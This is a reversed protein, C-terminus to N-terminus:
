KWAPWFHHCEESAWCERPVRREWLVDDPACDASDVVEVEGVLATLKRVEERVREGVKPDEGDEEVGDERAFWLVVRRVPVGREKRERLARRVRAVGRGDTRGVRVCLTELGAPCARALAGGDGREVVLTRLGPLVKVVAPGDEGVSWVSEGRDHSGSAGGSGDDEPERLWLARVAQGLVQLPASSLRAHGQVDIRCGGGGSGDPKRPVLLQLSTLPGNYAGPHGDKGDSSQPHPYATIRMCAGRDPDPDPDPGPDPRPPASFTGSTHITTSPTSSSVPTSNSSATSPFLHPACKTLAEATKGVDTPRLVSLHVFSGPPLSLRAVLSLPWPGPSPAPSPGLDTPDIQDLNIERHRRSWPGLYCLSLKRLRSLHLRPTDESHWEAAIYSIRSINLEELADCRALFRVLDSVGHSYCPEYRFLILHTLTTFANIPYTFRGQLCLTRLKPTYNNFLIVPKAKEVTQDEVANIRCFRLNDAPFTVLHRLYRTPTYSHLTSFEEVRGGLRSLQKRIDRDGHGPAPPNGIVVQMPGTSPRCRSVIAPGGLRGNRDVLTSWFHASDTAVTRWYRCVITLPLFEDIPTIAHLNFVDALGYKKDEAYGPPVLFFINGLIEPPLTNM